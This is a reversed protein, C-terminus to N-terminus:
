QLVLLATRSKSRTTSQASPRVGSSPPSHRHSPIVTARQGGQSAGCAAIVPRRTTPLLLPRLGTVGAFAPTWDHSAGQSQCLFSAHHQHRQLPASDIFYSWNQHQADPGSAEISVADGNHLRIIDPFACLYDSSKHVVLHELAM